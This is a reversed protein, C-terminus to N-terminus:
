RVHIIPDQNGARAAKDACVKYAQEPFATVFYNCMGATVSVYRLTRQLEAIDPMHKMESRSSENRVAPGVGQEEVPGINESSHVHQFKAAPM